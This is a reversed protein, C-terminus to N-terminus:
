LKAVRRSLQGSTTHVVVVYIGSPLDGISITVTRADGCLDSKKMLRGAADWLEYGQIMRDASLHLEDDAPVPSIVQENSATDAIGTSTCNPDSAPLVTITIVTDNTCGFDDVMTYTYNFAGSGMPAVMVSNCDPATWTIGPGSWFSSDCGAGISPTFAAPATGLSPDFAISWGCLFGNDSYWLDAAAFTWTGNLPCGILDSFAGVSEYTGPVLSQQQSNGGPITNNMNETWTGNTASPSWCYQWCTGIVPASDDGDNPSGIYTGGGGQQHLITSEGNPCIVELVLDGMFSHEMDVCISFLDTDSNLTAGPPFNNLDISSLLPVGNGDPIEIGSEYDMGSEGNWPTPIPTGSLELTQGPCITDTETTILASPVTATLVELDITNMSVCGADDTVVLQVVQGGPTNFVHSVTSGSTDDMAVNGFHWEYGVLMHGPAAYSGSGDFTVSGGPCILLPSPGGM